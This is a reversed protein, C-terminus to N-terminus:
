LALVSQSFFASFFTGKLLNVLDSLEIKILKALKNELNIKLKEKSEQDIAEDVILELKPNLYNASIISTWTNINYLYFSNSSTQSILNEDVNIIGTFSANPSTTGTFNLHKTWQNFDSLFLNNINSSYIGKESAVYISDKLFATEYIINNSSPSSIGYVDVIEMKVM